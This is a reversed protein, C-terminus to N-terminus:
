NTCATFFNTLPCQFNFIHPDPVLALTCYQVCRAQVSAQVPSPAALSAPAEGGGEGSDTRGPAEEEQSEEWNVISRLVDPPCAGPGPDTAWGCLPPRLAVKQSRHQSPLCETPFEGSIFPILFNGSINAITLLWDTTGREGLSFLTSSYAHLCVDTSLTSMTDRTFHGRFVKVCVILKLKTWKVTLGTKTTSTRTEGDGGGWGNNQLLDWGHFRKRWRKAHIELLHIAQSTKIISFCWLTAM